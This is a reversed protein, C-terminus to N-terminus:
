LAPGCYYLAVRKLFADIGAQNSTDEGGATGKAFCSEGTVATGADAAPAGVVIFLFAGQDDRPSPMVAITIESIQM